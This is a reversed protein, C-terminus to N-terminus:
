RNYHETKNCIIYYCNYLNEAFFNLPLSHLIHCCVTHLNVKLQFTGAKLDSISHIM